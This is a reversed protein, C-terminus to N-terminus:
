VMKNHLAKPYHRSGAVSTKTEFDRLLADMLQNMDESPLPQRHQGAFAQTSITPFQNDIGTKIASRTSDNGPALERGVSQVNTVLLKLDSLYEDLTKGPEVAFDVLFDKVGAPTVKSLLKRLM